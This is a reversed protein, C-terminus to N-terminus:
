AGRLHRLLESKAFTIDEDQWLLYPRAPIMVRTRLVFLLRLGGNKGQKQMILGVRDGGDNKHLIFTNKYRRPSAKVGPLPIALARARVPRIEGGKQHLRAGRHRIGISLGDDTVHEKIKDRMIGTRVLPSGGRLVPEWADPRGGARFNLPISSRTMHRGIAELAPRANQGRQELQRLLATVDDTDVHYILAM